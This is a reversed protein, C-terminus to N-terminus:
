IAVFTPDEKDTTVHNLFDNIAERHTKGQLHQQHQKNSVFTTNGANSNAYDQLALIDIPCRTRNTTPTSTNKLQNFLRTRTAKCKILKYAQNLRVTARRREPTPESRADMQQLRSLTEEYKREIRTESPENKTLIGGIIGFANTARLIRTAEDTFTATQTTPNQPNNSDPPTSPSKPTTNTQTKLNVQNNPKTNLNNQTHNTQPTNINPQTLNNNKNTPKVINNTTTKARLNRLIMSLTFRPDKSQDDHPTEMYEEKCDLACILEGDKSWKMINTKIWDREWEKTPLIAPLWGDFKVDIRDEEKNAQRLYGKAIEKLRKSIQKIAQPLDHTLPRSPDSNLNHRNMIYKQTLGILNTFVVSPTGCKVHEPPEKVLNIPHSGSILPLQLEMCVDQANLDLTNAKLLFNDGTSKTLMKIICALLNQSYPCELCLHKSTEEISKNRLYYCLRCIGKTEDNSFDRVPGIPLSDTLVRYLLDRVLINIESNCLSAFIKNRVKHTSSYEHALTSLWSTSWSTTHRHQRDFTRIPKFIYSIFLYYINHTTLQACNIPKRNRDLEPYGRSFAKPNTGAENIHAYLSRDLITEDILDGSLIFKGEKPANEQLDLDGRHEAREWAEGQATCSAIQKDEWVIVRKIKLNTTLTIPTQDM